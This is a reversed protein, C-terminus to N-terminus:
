RGEFLRARFAYCWNAGRFWCMSLYSDLAGVLYHVANLAIEMLRPQRTQCALELFEFYQDADTEQSQGGNAANANEKDTLAATHASAFLSLTPKVNSQLVCSVPSNTASM